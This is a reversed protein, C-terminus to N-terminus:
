IKWESQSFFNLKVHGKLQWVLWIGGSFASLSRTDLLAGTDGDLVDIRQTRSLSDWDLCYFAVNHALGDNFTLDVTFASASFWDAAVRTSAGPATVM